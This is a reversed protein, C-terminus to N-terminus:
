RREVAQLEEIYSAALRLTTPNDFFFGLGSNCSACLLKRVCKGCTKSGPCCSHDHDVVLAGDSRACIACSDGQKARLSRLAEVSM